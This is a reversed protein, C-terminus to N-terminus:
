KVELEEKFFKKLRGENSKVFWDLLEDYHGGVYQTVLNKLPELEKEKEAMLQKKEKMKLKSNIIQNFTM